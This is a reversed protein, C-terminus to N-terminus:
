LLLARTSAISSSRTNWLMSEMSEEQLAATYLYLIRMSYERPPIPPIPRQSHLADIGMGSAERGVGIGEIKVEQM